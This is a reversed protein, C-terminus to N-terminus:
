PSRGSVPAYRQRGPHHAGGPKQQRHEVDVRESPRPNGRCRIAWTQRGQPHGAGCDSRGYQQRQRGIAATTADLKLFGNKNDGAPLQAVALQLRKKVAGVQLSHVIAGFGNAKAPSELIETGNITYSLVVSDDHLYHGRYEMWKAPMPGRPLLKDTPYDFKNAHAWRWMQLGPILEGGPLAVGEGRERFHQTQKLDLFGGRWVGAQDMSHLNYSIAHDEGLRVTLVSSIDRGLQSALAPGFDRRQQGGAAPTATEAKPLGALYEPTLPKFGPHLPKMFQERIYHIVDYRERPTMWTQLGMLGNGDTLTRFMAYPDTGFKLEGTGFARAVPLSPTRGDAGHCNVCLNNYITQGRELSAEDWAQMLGSHNVTNLKAVEAQATNLLTLLCLFTAIKRDM